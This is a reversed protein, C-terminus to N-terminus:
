GTAQPARACRVNQMFRKLSDRYLSFGLGISVRLSNKSFFIGDRRGFFPELILLDPQHKEVLEITTVQDSAMACVAYDTDQRIIAAIGERAATSDDAVVIQPRQASIADRVAARSRM